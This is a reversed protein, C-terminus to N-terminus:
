ALVVLGPPGIAAEAAQQVVQGGQGAVLDAEGFGPDGDRHEGLGGTGLALGEVEDAGRDREGQRLWASGSFVLDSRFGGVPSATVETYPDARGPAGHSACGPRFRSGTRQSRRVRADLQSQELGLFM